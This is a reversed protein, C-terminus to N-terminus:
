SPEVSQSLILKKCQRVVYAQTKEGEEAKYALKPTRSVPIRIISIHLDVLEM